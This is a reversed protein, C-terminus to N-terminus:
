NLRAKVRAAHAVGSPRLTVTVNIYNLKYECGALGNGCSFLLIMEATGDAALPKHFAAPFTTGYAGSANWASGFDDDRYFVSWPGWPEPAELMVLQSRRLTNLQHWPSQHWPRPNGSVVDVFGYNAVLWRGIEANYHIANQGMMRGYTMVPQAQTADPSWQARGDASLGAYYQYAPPSTIAAPVPAVRALYTADGNEWYTDDNFGSGTFFVYVWDLSSDPDRCPLGRGCSTFTPASFRGPFSTVSTVNAWTLGNDTSSAIWGTIDRQRVFLTSNFGYDICTAGVYLVGGIEAFGGPKVNGFDEKRSANYPACLTLWDLPDGVIVSVNLAQAYPDGTFETLGMPGLATDCVWALTRGAATWATPWTDGAGPPGRWVTRNAGVVAGAIAQSPPFPPPPALIPAFSLVASTVAGQWPNSANLPPVVGKLMCCVSGASCSNGGVSTFAPQPNNFSLAVCTSTSCCLSVCDAFTATSPLPFSLIDNGSRLSNPADPIASCTDAAAATALALLLSSTFLM